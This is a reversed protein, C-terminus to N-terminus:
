SPCDCLALWLVSFVLGGVLLSAVILLAFRVYTWPAWPNGARAAIRSAAWVSVAVAAILLGVSIAPHARFLLALGAGTACIVAFIVLDGFPTAGVYDTFRELPSGKNSRAM